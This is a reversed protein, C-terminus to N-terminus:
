TFTVALLTNFIANTKYDRHCSIVTRPCHDLFLLMHGLKLHFLNAASIEPSLLDDKLQARSSFNERKEKQASFGSHKTSETSCATLIALM